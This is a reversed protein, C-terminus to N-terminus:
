EGIELVWEWKRDKLGQVVKDRVAGSMAAVIQDADDMNLRDLYHQALSTHRVEKIFHTLITVIAVNREADSEAAAMGWSAQKLSFALSSAFLSALHLRTSSDMLTKQRKTDQTSESTLLNAERKM